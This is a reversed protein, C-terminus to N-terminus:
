STLHRFQVVRRDRAPGPRRQATSMAACRDVRRGGSRDLRDAEAELDEATHLRAEWIMPNATREAFERYWLALERLKLSDPM